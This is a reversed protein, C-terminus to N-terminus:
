LLIACVYKGTSFKYILYLLVHTFRGSLFLCFLFRLLLQYSFSLWFYQLNSLRSCEAISKVQLLRDNKKFVMKTKKLTAMKCLIKSYIILVFTIVHTISRNQIPGTVPGIDVTNAHSQHGFTLLALKTETM